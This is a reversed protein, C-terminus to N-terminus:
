KKTMTFVGDWAGEPPHAKLAECRGIYLGAPPDGPRIEQVKRFGAIAEDWRGEKYSTLAADFARILPEWKPADKKDGLLEYIKVPLHKGKVRVSDLERCVLKEKVEEYTFESIVINTGYEKNIGELRSGLNVSDGMVTYDFRMQSGMNGVVMDGSNVGVGINLVPKGEGSWKKQLEHLKDMMDLATRCAREAHDPQDLPAGYVAMIADGMYKDLLGDYKFVIDTMATLYENLLHVLEEPTLSESVTTFGRIDSFLVSLRKKDGGLKLKSPDKLMENIVSATLYFQFAGRIKKKEREETVYKYVTIALYVTMVTGVPYVLNLWFNFRTFILGNLFVYAALLAVALLMGTVARVRPVALGIALGLVLIAALDFLGAWGPRQIFSRHLINDIVNAHIEVGPFVSSFPTVRLDYIGTATAGVIVIKDKFLGPQLRGHLIDTISYHPFTKARGLYNILIRGSEDTPIALDGIQVGAIGFEALHLVLMPYDLYQSILALSLPPYFDGRFQIALPAWRISGDSDPFANFFGANDAALSIEPINAEVAYARVLVSEDPEGQAQIMPYKFPAILERGREIDAETLHSVDKKTRHFFYGLTVNGANKIAQALAADTDAEALKRRLLGSLKADKIGSAQVDKMLQRIDRLSANQDPEAFVIDFGVAKAGCSKLVEVLGAVVTRPWPWRGLEKVSKEDVVAIVTEGGPAREGRSLIRLDLAKLEMFRFFSPDLVYVAAAVVIIALSITLPSPSLIKKIRDKM